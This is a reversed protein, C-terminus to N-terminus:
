STSASSWPTPSSLSRWVISILSSRPTWRSLCTQCLAWPSVRPAVSSRVLSSSHHSEVRTSSPRLVKRSIPISSSLAFLRAHSLMWMPNSRTSMTRLSAAMLFKSGSHSKLKFASFALLRKSIQISIMLMTTSERAMSLPGDMRLWSSLSLTLSGRGRTSPGIEPKGRPILYRATIYSSRRSTQSIARSRWRGNKSYKLRPSISLWTISATTDITPSLSWKAELIEWRTPMELSTKPSVLRM